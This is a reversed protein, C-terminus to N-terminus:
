PGAGEVEVRLDGLEREVGARERSCEAAQAVPCRMWIARLSGRRFPFAHHYYREFSESARRAYEPTRTEPPLEPKPDYLAAVHDVLEWTLTKPRSARAAEFADALEQSDRERQRWRAFLAVCEEFRQACVHRVLSEYEQASLPEGRQAQYRRLLSHEAGLRAAALGASSPLRGSGGIFFARAARHSLIPHLLTHLPGELAAAHIVGRPLLEHALLEPLSALGARELGARFDPQQARALLRELDRSSDRDGFGLLLLDVGAGYWVAVDEFVDTYTRLVLALTEDDLEYTHIWQSYVGGPRLRERAAALFERSYLMEIGTVWPNSPESVIVDFRGPTRLLARYADSRVVRTKPSALAHQNGFEFHPAAEIVGRSIEAVVVEQTSDLAALEGASVGTGWGIVFAREVDRALLGPALALLAMTPYDGTLSGDSKGNNIISDVRGGLHPATAVAVSAIPDDTYFAVKRQIRSYFADPGDGGGNELSRTRFLGLSLRLPEWRELLALGVLPVLTLVAAARRLGPPRAAVLGAAVFLLGVAVRYVAHLDLWFFLLYGGLLAGLLSGVTNWAYLRGAVSGLDGVQHRLHHFVLPLVAGSLAVPIGIVALIALLTLLHYPLIAAEVDRFVARLQLAWYGSDELPAYLALLAGALLWQNAPLIWGPIHSFASVAFSGLAICLVFVAVVMSFTFHSAGLALGGLRILTTQLTMMAFGTLLAVALYVRLGEVTRGDREPPPAAPQGRRRRHMGVFCLGACLNVLGMAFLVGVLGLWPVLWFGAALAGAFAGVTNTGYVLAHFRTADDLSRPLAQTLLPITAGMLVTPPGILLASLLVDFGFGLPTDAGPLRISIWRAAQFLLPFAFAYVGIAAEVIGYVGLLAPPREASRGRAVLAEALRGFGYYGLALGGLFIGLVAATAESHSGLLTALYKQWTVEYVLGSFGTLGTLALALRRM